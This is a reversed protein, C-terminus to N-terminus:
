THGYGVEVRMREIVLHYLGITGCDHLASIVTTAPHIIRRFMLIEANKGCLTNNIEKTHNSSYTYFGSNGFFQKLRSTKIM